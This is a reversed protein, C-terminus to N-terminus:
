GEMTLRNSDGATTIGCEVAIARATLKFDGTVM